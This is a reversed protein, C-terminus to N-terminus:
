NFWGQTYGYYGLGALALFGLLMFIHKMEFGDKRNLTAVEVFAKNDLLAHLTDAGIFSATESKEVFGRILPTEIGKKFEIVKRVRWYTIENIIAKPDIIYVEASEGDEGKLKYKKNVLSTKKLLATTPSIFIRVFLRNLYARYIAKFIFFGGVAVGLWLAPLIYWEYKVIFDMMTDFWM